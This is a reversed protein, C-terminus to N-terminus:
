LKAHTFSSTVSSRPMSQDNNGGQLLWLKSAEYEPETLTPVGPWGKSTTSSVPEESKHIAEDSQETPQVVM